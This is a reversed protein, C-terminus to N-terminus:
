EIGQERWRRKHRNKLTKKTKNKKEIFVWM